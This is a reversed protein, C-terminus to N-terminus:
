KFRVSREEKSVLSDEKAKAEVTEEVEKKTTELREAVERRLRGIVAKASGEMVGSEIDAEIDDLVSHLMRKSRSEATDQSQVFLEQEWDKSSSELLYQKTKSKVAKWWPHFQWWLRSAISSLPACVEASRM